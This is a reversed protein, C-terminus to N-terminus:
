VMLNDSEALKKKKVVAYTPGDASAPEPGDTFAPESQRLDEATTYIPNEETQKTGKGPFCVFALPTMDSEALSDSCKTVPPSVSQFCFKRLM